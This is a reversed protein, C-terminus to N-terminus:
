PRFGGADGDAVFLMPRENKLSALASCVDRRVLDGNRADVVVVQETM